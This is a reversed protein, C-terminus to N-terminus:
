SFVVAFIIFGQGRNKTPVYLRDLVALWVYKRPILHSKPIKGSSEVEDLNRVDILTITNEEIAEKVQAFDM